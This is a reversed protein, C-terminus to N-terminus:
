QVVATAATPKNPKVDTHYQVSYSDVTPTSVGDTNSLTTEVQLYKNAGSASDVIASIDLPVTTAPTQYSSWATWDSSNASTRLRYQVNTNALKTYTPTFTEWSIFQKTAGESGDIQTASSTHTAAGHNSYVEFEYLKAYCTGALPGDCLPNNASFARIYRANGVNNHVITSDDPFNDWTLFPSWSSGDSSVSVDLEAYWSPYNGLTYKTVIRSINMISGLDINIFYAGYSDSGGSWYTNLDGDIINVKEAAPSVLVQDSSMQLKSGAPDEIKFSGPVAATNINDKSGADWESQTNLTASASSADASTPSKLYRKM